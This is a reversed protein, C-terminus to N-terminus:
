QLGLIVWRVVLESIKNVDETWKVLMHFLVVIQTPLMKDTPNGNSGNYLVITFIIAIAALPALCQIYAVTPSKINEM